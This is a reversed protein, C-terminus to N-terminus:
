RCVYTINYMTRVKLINKYESILFRCYEPLAFQRRRPAMPTLFYNNVFDNGGLTVLVLARDVLQQAGQNQGLSNRLRRQYDQFLEFQRDIRLINLQLNLFSLNM